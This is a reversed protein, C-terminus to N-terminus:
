VEKKSLFVSDYKKDRQYDEMIFQNHAKENGGYFTYQSKLTSFNM